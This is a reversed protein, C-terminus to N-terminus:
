SLKQVYRAIVAAVEARTAVGTPNLKGDATGTVIGNEVAWTLAANAYDAVNGSDSYTSLSGSSTPQGAYRYLMVALQQRSITGNPNTGDSIGKSVAWAMGQDTSSPDNGDLRSLVTMLQARTTPANPTFVNAFTGNFLERSSVFAIADAAWAPTDHFNKTNDIIKVTTNGPVNLAVGDDTVISTRAISESGDANVIVAVTGPTIGTVPIDVKTAGSVSIDISPAAATSYAPKMQVPLTVTSGNKSASAPVSVNVATVIGNKDTVTTGTIGDATKTTKTVAGTAQNETRTITSGDASATTTTTTTPKSSTSSGTSSNNSGSSSNRRRKKSSSTTSSSTNDNNSSETVSAANTNSTEKSDSGDASNESGKDGSNDADSSGATVSGSGGDKGSAPPESGSGDDKGSAPTESGSGDDKGSAPPESGSGDDKGSAPTESDSSGDKSSAPTESGSGDDKGSAPTENGSDGDGGPETTETGPQEPPVTPTQVARITVTPGSVDSLGEYLTHANVSVRTKYVGPQVPPNSFWDSSDSSQYEIQAASDSSLLKEQNDQTNLINVAFIGQPNGDYDVTLTEDASIKEGEYYFILSLNESSVRNVELDGECESASLGADTDGSYAVQFSYDGAAPFTAANVPISWTASGNTVACRKAYDTGNIVLNATGSNVTSGGEATIAATIRLEDLYTVAGPVTLQITTAQATPVAPTAGDTLTLVYNHTIEGDDETPASISIDYVGATLTSTLPYPYINIQPDYPDNPFFEM